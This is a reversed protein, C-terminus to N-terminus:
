DLGIENLGVRFINGMGNLVGNSYQDLDSVHQFKADPAVFKQSTFYFNGRPLDIFPCYDLHASNIKAGMNLAPKWNDSEDKKSYYLDGGGLGDKRGFSSFIILDEDPTVYANFEYTGTNIVSDLPAPNSYSGDVWKSVFIDESGVGIERVSTFYLNGNRSVSPYFEDQLSNINTTLPQPESWTGDAKESVWINYDSRTSDADMPRNSAFFLRNGDVSFAPEIDQYKGSFSLIEKEGWKSDSRVLRVLCRKSQKYDGLTFVMENGDPSIAMDREYLRTSVIGEAFIEVNAPVSELDISIPKDTNCQALAIILVIPFANTKM